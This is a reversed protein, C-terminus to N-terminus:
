LKLNWMANFPDKVLEDFSIYFLLNAGDKWNEDVLEAVRINWFVKEAEWDIYIKDYISYNTQGEKVKNRFRYEVPREGEVFTVCTRFGAGRMDHSNPLTVVVNIERAESTIM